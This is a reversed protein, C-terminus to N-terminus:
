SRLAGVDHISNAHRVALHDRQLADKTVNVRKFHFNSYEKARVWEFCVRLIM